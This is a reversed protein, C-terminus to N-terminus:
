AMLAYPHSSTYIWTKKVEDSTLPTRQIDLCYPIGWMECGQLGGRGTVLIAECASIIVLGIYVALEEDNIRIWSTSPQRISISPGERTILHHDLDSRCVTHSSLRTTWITLRGGTFAARALRGASAYLLM